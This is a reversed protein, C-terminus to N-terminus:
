DWGCGTDSFAVMNAELISPELVWSPSEQTARSVLPFPYIFSYINNQIQTQGYAYHTLTSGDFTGFGYKASQFGHVGVLDFVGDHWVPIHLNGSIPTGTMM